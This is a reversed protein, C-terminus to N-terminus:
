APELWKPFVGEPKPLATGPALEASPETVHAIQRRDASVALQDLVRASSTPMFPQTLIAIRRITEVLVWLVTNMRTQDTKRLNWPAQTDIWRNADAIVGFIAELAKHPAQVDMETRVKAVLGAAADLLERDVPQLEGRPPVAAGANKQIFSLVRLALNGYDNALDANM